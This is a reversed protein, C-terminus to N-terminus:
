RVTAAPRADDRTAGRHRDDPHAREDRLCDRLCDLTAGGDADSECSGLGQALLALRSRRKCCRAMQTPFPPGSQGAKRVVGRIAWELAAREVSGEYKVVPRIAVGRWSHGPGQALWIDLHGRTVPLARDGLEM